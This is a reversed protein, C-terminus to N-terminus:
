RRRRRPPLLATAPRTRTTAGPWAAAVAREITGPPVTGPVWLQITIGDATATYEFALHPQLLARNWRPKLLGLVHTWFAEAEALAARPPPLIQVIRAHRALLAHRLLRAASVAAAWALAGAAVAAATGTLPLTGLVPLLDVLRM